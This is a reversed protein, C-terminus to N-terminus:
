AVAKPKPGRKKPTTAQTVLTKMEEMQKAFDERMKTNEAELAKVRDEAAQAVSDGKALNLFRIAHDRLAYCSMGGAMGIKQLNADSAGAINEVTYFKLARLDEVTAPSLRSWESLPTGIERTDGGHKNQYHAWHHPFRKKHEERVPVDIVTTADGPVFIRVFDADYHIARGAKESEFENKMPRSYFQVAL